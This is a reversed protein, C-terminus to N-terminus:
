LTKKRDIFALMGAQVAENQRRIGESNNTNILELLRAESENRAAVYRRGAPSQSFRMLAVQDEASVERQTKLAAARDLAAAQERTITVKGETRAQQTVQDILPQPNVNALMRKIVRQAAATEFFAVAQELEKETMARAYSDARERQFRTVFEECYQRAIPRAADIGANTVGPYAQEMKQMAPNMSAGKRVTAEWAAYNAAVMLARPETLEELREALKLAAASVPAREVSVIPPGAIGQPPAGAAGPALLALAFLLSAM